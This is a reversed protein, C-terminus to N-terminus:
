AIMPIPTTINYTWRESCCGPFLLEDELRRKRAVEKMEM